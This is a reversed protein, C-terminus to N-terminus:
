NANRQFDLYLCPDIRYPTVIRMTGRGIVLNIYWRAIIVMM